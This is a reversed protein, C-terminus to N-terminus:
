GNRCYPDQEWSECPVRLTVETPGGLPSIVTLEGDFAALRRRLGQMGTGRAPDAGGAGDDRVSGELHGGKFRLTLRVQDTAAHKAVNTLLERLAFYVASEVAAEARGPVDVDVDVDLPADLALARVAEGLGREALVPPLIDRVVARLDSLTRRLGRRADGIVERARVPDTDLLLEVTDLQMGISVLGAQVGDHLDQEIRRLEAVQSRNVTSRSHSLEQVRRALVASATPSLLKVGVWGINRLVAPAVLLGAAVVALGVVLGIVASTGAPLGVARLLGNWAEAPDYDLWPRTPLYWVWPWVLAVAAYGTAAVITGTVVATLPQVATWALDRWTAPDRMVWAYRALREVPHPSDYLTRGGEYLGDRRPTPPAPAPLYPDVVPHGAWRSLLRRQASVAPRAVRQAAPLLWGGGLPLTATVLVALLLNPGALLTAVTVGSLATLGRLVATMARHAGSRAQTRGTPGLLRAAFHGYAATAGPAIAVGLVALTAGASVAAWGSSGPVRVAALLAGGGVLATPLLATVAAVVPALLLFANDRHTASDTALWRSRHQYSPLAPSRFLQNGLRYRGRADPQPPPPAPRYPSEITPGCWRRVLRRILGTFRRAATTASLVGLLTLTWSLVLVVVGVVALATLALGRVLAMLRQRM